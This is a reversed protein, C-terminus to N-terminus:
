FVPRWVTPVIKTADLICGLKVSVFRYVPLWNGLQKDYDIEAHSNWGQRTEHQKKGIVFAATRSMRKMM